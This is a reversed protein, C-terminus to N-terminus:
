SQEEPIFHISGAVPTIAPAPHPSIDTWLQLLAQDIEHRKADVPLMAAGFLFQAKGPYQAYACWYRNM